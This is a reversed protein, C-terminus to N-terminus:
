RDGRYSILSRDGNPNLSWVYTVVEEHNSGNHAHGDLLVAPDWRQMVNQVLGRVEPSELKMGGRNLDLNQGNARIGVGQEPGAQDRRNDPSIRENGDPNFDPVILIELKDLFRSAEELALDRALM